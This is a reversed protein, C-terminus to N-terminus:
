HSENNSRTAYWVDIAKNLTQCIWDFIPKAFEDSPNTDFDARAIRVGGSVLIGNGHHWHGTLPPEPVPETQEPNPRMYRWHTFPWLMVLGTQEVFQGPLRSTPPKYLGITIGHTLSGAGSQKAFEASYVEVYQFHPITDIPQWGSAARIQQITPMDIVSIIGHEDTVYWDRDDMSSNAIGYLHCPKLQEPLEPLLSMAIYTSQKLFAKIGSDERM